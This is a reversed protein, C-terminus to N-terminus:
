VKEKFPQSGQNDTTKQLKIALRDLRCQSLIVVLTLM